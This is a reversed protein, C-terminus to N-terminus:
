KSIIRAAKAAVRERVFDALDSVHTFSFAEKEPIFVRFTNEIRTMAAVLTISDLPLSLLPTAPTLTDLDIHALDAPELVDALAERLAALIDADTPATPTTTM